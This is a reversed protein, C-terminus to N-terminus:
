VGWVTDIISKDSMVSHTMYTLPWMMMEKRQLQSGCTLFLTLERWGGNGDDGWSGLDLDNGFSGLPIIGIGGAGGVMHHHHM